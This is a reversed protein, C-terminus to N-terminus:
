LRLFIVYYPFITGLNLLLTRACLRELPRGKIFERKKISFLNRIIFALPIISFLAIISPVGQFIGLLITLFCIGSLSAYLWSAKERGLRVVLNKKGSARDAFYDPFENILIVLFISIGIPISVATPLLDFHGAQLYYGTNVTLWGYCLGILIEGIGRYAWQIPRSSYFFGCLMGLAGLPLTFPGTQFFFYIGLGILAAGGLCSVSAIWVQEKPILGSPLIRSGGSFKNYSTNLCDSEYDYYEGSYYTALMILVIAITSFIAVPINLPYGQSRSIIMGLIFPFVGVTHFPFRSLVLWSSVRKRPKFSINIEDM